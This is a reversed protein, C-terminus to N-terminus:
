SKEQKVSVLFLYIDTAQCTSTNIITPLPHFSHFDAGKLRQHLRTEEKSQIIEVKYHVKVYHNSIKHLKSKATQILIFTLKIM